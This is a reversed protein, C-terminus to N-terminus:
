VDVSSYIEDPPDKQEHEQDRVRKELEAIAERASQVFSDATYEVMISSGFITLDIEVVYEGDDALPHKRFYVEARSIHDFEHHLETLKQKIHDLLWEQTEGAPTHFEIHM